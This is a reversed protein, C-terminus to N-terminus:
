ALRRSASELDDRITKAVRAARVFEAANKAHADATAKTMTAIRNAADNLKALRHSGYPLSLREDDNSVCTTCNM